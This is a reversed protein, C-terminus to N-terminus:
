PIDSGSLQSGDLAVWWAPQYFSAGLAILAALASLRFLVSARSPGRMAASKARQPENM